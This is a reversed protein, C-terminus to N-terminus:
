GRAQECVHGFVESGRRGGKGSILHEGVDVVVPVHPVTCHLEHELSKVVSARIHHVLFSFVAEKDQALIELDKPYHISPGLAKKSFPKVWMNMCVRLVGSCVCVIVFM